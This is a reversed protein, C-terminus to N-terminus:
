IVEVVRRELDQKTKRRFEDIEEDLHLVHVYLVRRDTSVDLSLTGPTLTILNALTTIQIDTKADLPVAVVGARLRPRPSLVDVAATFNAKLLEWVFFAALGAAKPVREFYGRSAPERRTIFLLVFGIAFGILLNRESFNGTIAAWVLALLINWLLM